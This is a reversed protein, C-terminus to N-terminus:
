KSIGPPPGMKGMGPAGSPVDRKKYGKPIEFLADPQRTQKINKLEESMQGMPTKAESKIQHKLKTSIWVTATVNQEKQVVQYKTCALGNVTATGLKKADPRSKLLAEPDTSATTSAQKPITVEMYSKTQPMVVWVVGKDPRVITIQKNGMMEMETRQKAGKVYVKGTMAMGGMKIVQDASFEAALMVTSLCLVGFACSSLVIGARFLPRFRM